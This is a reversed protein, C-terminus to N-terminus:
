EEGKWAFVKELQNKYDRIEEIDGFEERLIKYIESYYWCHLNKDKQNFREWLEDGLVEYDKAMMRINSLKDGLCILKVVRSADKLNEITEQKREAWTEEAPRDARKNESVGAVLDAVRKGFAKELEERTVGTDELTDHLVAAAIVEEDDTLRRVIQMTQIPHQIYPRNTGKRLQGSHADTAFQLAKEVMKM